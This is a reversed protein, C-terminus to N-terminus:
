EAEKKTAAAVIRKGIVRHRGCLKKTRIPCRGNGEIDSDVGYFCPQCTLSKVFDIEVQRAFGVAAMVVTLGLIAGSLRM